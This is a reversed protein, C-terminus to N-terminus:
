RGNYTEREALFARIEETTANPGREHELEEAVRGLLTRAELLHSACRLYLREKQQLALEMSQMTYQDATIIGRRFDQWLRQGAKWSDQENTM